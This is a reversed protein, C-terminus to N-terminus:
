SAKALAMAPGPPLRAIVRLNDALVSWAVERSQNEYGKSLLLPTGLFGNKFIWIRTGTQLRRKRLKSFASDKKRTHLETPPKQCIGNYIRHKEM